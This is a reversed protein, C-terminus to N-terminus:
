PHAVVMADLQYKSRLEAQARQAAERQVMPGVRVRWRQGQGAVQIPQVFAAHGGSKLRTALEAAAAESSFVGVQVAFGTAAAAASPASSQAADGMPAEIVSSQLGAIQRQAKLRAADAETRTAYGGSRVRHLTRGGTGPVADARASVGLKALDAVLKDANAKEGYSGFQIVFRGGSVPKPTTPAAPPTERVPAAPAVAAPAPTPAPTERRPPEAQVPKPAPAAQTDPINFETPQPPPEPMPDIRVEPLKDDPIAPEAPAVPTPAETPPGLPLRRTEMRTDSPAPQSLDVSGSAAQEDPADLLMPVFIVALTIIVAAGILRQRLADDM